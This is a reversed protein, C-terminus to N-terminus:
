GSVTRRRSSSRRWWPIRLHSPWTARRGRPREAVRGKRRTSRRTGVAVHRPDARREDEHAVVAVLHREEGQRAGRGPGRRATPEVDRAVRPRNPSEHAEGQARQEPPQALLRSKSARVGAPPPPRWSRRRMAGPPGRRRPRGCPTAAGSGCGDGRGAPGPALAESGTLVIAWMESRWKPRSSGRPPPPAHQLVQGRAPGVEHDDAAVEGLARAAALESAARAKRSRRGAGASTTGPLWSMGSKSTDAATGAAARASGAGDDGVVQAGSKWSSSSATRPTFVAREQRTSSRAAHGVRLDVADACRKAGSGGLAHELHQHGM